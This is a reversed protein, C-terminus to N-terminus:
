RSAREGSVLNRVGGLASLPYGAGWRWRNYLETALGLLLAMALPALAVPALIALFVLQLRIALANWAGAGPEPEAGLGLVTVAVAGWLAPVLEGRWIGLLLAGWALALSLTAARAAGLSVVTTRQGVIEDGYRDAVMTLLSTSLIGLAYPSAAALARPFSGAQELAGTGAAGLLFAVIGYGIGHSLLDWGPRRKLELPPAVYAAGLLLSALLLWRELGSAGAALAAAGGLSVLAVLLLSRGRAYGARVPLGKANWRDGARDRWANAAHVAGLILLLSGLSAAEFRSAGAEREGWARGAAFIAIAPIWLLPRVAFILDLSRKM